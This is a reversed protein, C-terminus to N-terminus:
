DKQLLIGNKAKNSYNGEVLGEKNSIDAMDIGGGGGGVQHVSFLTDGDKIGDIENIKKNNFSSNYENRGVLILEEIDLDM